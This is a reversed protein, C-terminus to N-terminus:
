AKIKTLLGGGNELSRVVRMVEESPIQRVVEDTAPDVVKIVTVGSQEDVSFHLDRDIVQMYDRMKHVAEMVDERSSASESTKEVPSSKGSAAVDLAGGAKEPKPQGGENVNQKQNLAPVAPPTVAQRAVASTIENVM